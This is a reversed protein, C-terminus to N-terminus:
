TERMSASLAELLDGKGAALVFGQLPLTAWFFAFEIREGPHGAPHSEFHRWTEPVDGRCELHYYHRRHSEAIGYPNM